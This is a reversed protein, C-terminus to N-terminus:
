VCEHICICAYIFIWSDSFISSDLFVEGRSTGFVVSGAYLCLCLVSAEAMGARGVKAEKRWVAEWRHTHTRTHTNTHTHATHTHIVKQM